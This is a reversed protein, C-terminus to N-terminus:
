NESKLNQAKILDNFFNACFLHIDEPTKRLIERNLNTLLEPLEKPVTYNVSFNNKTISSDSNTKNM